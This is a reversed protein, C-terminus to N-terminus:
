IHETDTAEDASKSSTLILTAELYNSLLVAVVLLCVFLFFM